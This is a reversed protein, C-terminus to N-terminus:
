SIFYFRGHHSKRQPFFLSFFHDELIQYLDGNYCHGSRYDFTINTKDNIECESYLIKKKKAFAVAVVVTLSTWDGRVVAFGSCSGVDGLLLGGCNVVSGVNFYLEVVVSVAM